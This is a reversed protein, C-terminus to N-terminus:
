KCKTEQSDRWLAPWNSVTLHKSKPRSAIIVFLAGNDTQTVTSQIRGNDGQRDLAAM